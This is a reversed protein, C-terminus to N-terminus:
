PEEAEAQQHRALTAAFDQQGVPGALDALLTIQGNGGIGLVLERDRVAVLAVATKPMVSRVELVRIASGQLRSFGLRKRAIGYIILILGVVVLLAWTTQLIASGMSLPEGAWATDACFVLPLGAALLIRM